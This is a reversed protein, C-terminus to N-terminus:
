EPSALHGEEYEWRGATAGEELWTKIPEYRVSPPVDVAILSPVHSSEWSCGQSELHACAAEKADLALFIIRLTSHGSRRIVQKFLLEDASPEVAVVDGWAVGPVFFPINDLEYTNEGCERAWLTEIREPPWADDAPELRFKIKRHADDTPM